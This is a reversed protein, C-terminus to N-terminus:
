LEFGGDRTQRLMERELEPGPNIWGDPKLIKGDKRLVVRSGRVKAMNANHVIEFIPDLNIGNRAAAHLLYYVADALADAQETLTRANRLETLESGVMERIFDVGGPTITRPRDPLDEGSAIAFQRAKNAYGM